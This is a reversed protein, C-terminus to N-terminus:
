QARMGSGHLVAAGFGVVLGATRQRAMIQPFARQVSRSVREVKKEPILTRTVKHAPDVVAESLGISRMCWISRIAQAM